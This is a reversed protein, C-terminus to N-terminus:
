SDETGDNSVIELVLVRSLVLSAGEVGSERSKEGFDRSQKVFRLYRHNEVGRLGSHPRTLCDGSGRFIKEGWGRM